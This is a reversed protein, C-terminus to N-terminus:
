EKVLEGWAGMGLGAANGEETDIHMDLAFKDDVRIVVNQFVLARDGSVKVSVIQENEVWFDKADAVTMHIHRQAVILGQTLCVKGYPGVIEISESGELDGSERLPAKTGLKYNDGALIEVQTFKRYPGLVRVGWIEGKPWKITVAEECAYQGPQSLDKIKKCEYNAWFLTNADEQSLHLHRNSIGISLRMPEIFYYLLISIKLKM